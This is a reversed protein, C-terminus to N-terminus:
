KKRVPVLVLDAVPKLFVYLQAGQPVDTSKPYHIFDVAEPPIGYDDMYTSLPPDSGDDMVYFRRIGMEYYHHQFWEVMDAAQNKAFLCFALYEDHDGDRIITPEATEGHHHPRQSQGFAGYLKNVLDASLGPGKEAIAGTLSEQHYVAAASLILFVPLGVCLWLPPWKQARKPIRM